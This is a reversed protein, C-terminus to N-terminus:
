AIKLVVRGVIKGQRMRDLVDNAEALPATAVEATVAGRLAFAVAEDLDLRTGVSSGRLTLERGSIAAISAKLEDAKGGPLGLFVATGGPRLMGISQEFAKTAVAAVVAGHAGGGLAKRMASVPNGERADVTVEAGLKKALALKEPDIDVAAVRMGMAKGYQVAIHGLGGVGIVALWQGPRAMSRKIGRYTTVGACLIPAVTILDADKPLRAVFDARAVMYGAYGGPKSYGTAEGQRCITEMGALCSECHGCASWMWPVGVVDGKEFGDVGAGLAAVHGTVEHGPILPLVPGPTWDGDVAHLDSHCVGCAAVEVLIEGPGPEPIPLEEIALKTGIERLVAAKMTKTM